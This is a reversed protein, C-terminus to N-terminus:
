GLGILEEVKSRVARRPDPGGAVARVLASGVVVAHVLPAFALVQERTSIGFGGFVKVGPSLSACRALFARGDESMTTSPGTTGTRLTAYICSPELSSIRALRQDKM